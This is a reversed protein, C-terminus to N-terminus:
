IAEQKKELNIVPTVVKEKKITLKEKADKERGPKHHTLNYHTAKPNHQAAYIMSAKKAGVLQKENGVKKEKQKGEEGTVLFIDYSADKGDGVKVTKFTGEFLVQEAM